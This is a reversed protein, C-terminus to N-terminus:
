SHSGPPRQSGPTRGFREYMLGTLYGWSKMMRAEAKYAKDARGLVRYIGYRCCQAILRPLVQILLSDRRYISRSLGKRYQVARAYARGYRASNLEHYVVAGPTYGIKFGAQRVRRSFETDESFGSAGPGLRVDFLGAAETVSHLLSVNTGIFGRIEIIESGHDVLPINYQRLEKSEAERGTEDKGPLVKGQIAAFSYRRYTDLHAALCGPEVSVDDDFILFLDGQLSTLGCNLAHAKGRRPENLVLLPYRRHKESEQALLEATEDTSANNVVGIQVRVSEPCNM